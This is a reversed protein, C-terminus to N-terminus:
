SWDNAIKNSFYIFNLICFNFRFYCCNWPAKYLVENWYFMWLIYKGEGCRLQIYISFGEKSEFIRKAWNVQWFRFLILLINEEFGLNLFSHINPITNEEPPPSTNLCLCPCPRYCDITHSNHKIYILTTLGWLSM